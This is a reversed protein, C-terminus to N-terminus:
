LNASSATAHVIRSCYRAISALIDDATKTWIFPQPEDNTCEIYSRIDAELAHTSRHSSRRLKRVSLLGFWREVLNLWSSYTPTFHVHFRPHKKLWRKVVLTKHTAYNDMILHVDLNTPVSEDVRALFAVFEAARHRRYCHGIVKGTKTDLAAFLTTTGHRFYGHTHRQSVGPMMPLVLQTRELAQIQSKEDVCLVLANDPPNMYLGVIDRVKDVFLPDNSLSFTEVRHPKLGFARWVRSVMNQSLGLHKAMSRTSWHTANKPTLEITARVLEEIREDTVRRPAGPRPADLLGDLRLRVFRGRWKSVTAERVGLAEAVDCSKSGTACQLIIRARLGLQQSGTSRRAHRRLVELEEDTLVLAAKPRGISKPKM